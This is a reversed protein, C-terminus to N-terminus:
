GGCRVAYKELQVTVMELFVVATSLDAFGQLWALMWLPMLYMKAAFSHASPLRRFIETIDMFRFPHSCSTLKKELIANIPVIEGVGVLVRDARPSFKLM